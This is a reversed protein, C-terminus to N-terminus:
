LRAAVDLLELYSLLTYINYLRYRHLDSGQLDLNSQKQDGEVTPVTDRIAFRYRMETEPWGNRLRNRSYLYLFVATYEFQTQKKRFLFFFFFEYRM